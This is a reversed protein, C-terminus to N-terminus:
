SSFYFKIDSKISDTYFSPRKRFTIINSLLLFLLFCYIFLSYQTSPWVLWILTLFRTSFHSAVELNNDFFMIIFCSNTKLILGTFELHIKIHLQSLWTSYIFLIYRGYGLCHLLMTRSSFCDHLVYCLYKSLSIHKWYDRAQTNLCHHLFRVQNITSSVCCLKVFLLVHMNKKWDDM